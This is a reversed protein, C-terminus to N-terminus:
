RALEQEELQDAVKWKKQEAWWFVGGTLNSLFSYLRYEIALKHHHHRGPERRPEDSRPVKM